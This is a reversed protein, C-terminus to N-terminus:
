ITLSVSAGATSKQNNTKIAVWAFGYAIVIELGFLVLNQDGGDFSPVLLARLISVVIFYVACLALYPTRPLITRKAKNNLSWGIGFALTAIAWNRAVLLGLMRDVLLATAFTLAITVLVFYGMRKYLPMAIM